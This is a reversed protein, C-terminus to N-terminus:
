VLCPLIEPPPNIARIGNRVGEWLACDATVQAGQFNVGNLDANSFDAGRLDANHFIVNSLDCNNLKCDRLDAEFFNSGKLDANELDAERLDVSILSAHSLIVGRLNSGNLIAGELSANDLNAGMLTCGGNADAEDLTASRMDANMFNANTLTSGALTANTLIANVLIAETLNANTLDSRHLIANSFNTRVCLAEVLDLGGWDQGSLDRDSLLLPQGDPCYPEVPMYKTDAFYSSWVKRRALPENRIRIDVSRIEYYRGLNRDPYLVHEENRFNPNYIYIFLDTEPPQPISYGIALVQHGPNNILNWDTPMLCLTIPVGQDISDRVLGLQQNLQYGWASFERSRWPQSIREVWQPLTNKLSTVQRNYIYRALNSGDTPRSTDNPPPQGSSFYDNAAYCMGGCRGKTTIHIGEWYEHNEFTNRFRFGHEEVTFDTRNEPM